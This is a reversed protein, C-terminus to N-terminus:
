ESSNKFLAYIEKIEDATLTDDALAKNVVSLVNKGKLYGPKQKILGIGFTLLLGLVYAIPELWDM